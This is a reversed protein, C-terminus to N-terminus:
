PDDTIYEITFIIQSTDTIDNTDLSTYGATTPKVFLLETNNTLARIFIPGTFAADMNTCYTVVGGGQGQATNAVPFPPNKLFLIGSAGNISSLQIEGSIFVRNGYRSWVCTDTGSLTCDTGGGTIGFQPTFAVERGISYQQGDIDSGEVFVRRYAATGLLVHATVGQQSDFEGELITLATEDAVANVRVAYQAYNIFKTGIFRITDRTRPTTTGSVLNNSGAAAKSYLESGMVSLTSVDNGLYISGYAGGEVNGLSCNSIFCDAQANIRVPERGTLADCNILTYTRKLDAGTGEIDYLFGEAANPANCRCSDLTLDFGRQAHFGEPGDNHCHALTWRDCGSHTTFPTQHCNYAKWGHVLVDETRGGDTVHRCNSAVAGRMTGARCQLAFIGYFGSNQGEVIADTYGDNHGRMRPIDVDFGYTNSFWCQAGSFGGVYEPEFIANQCYNFFVAATGSGNGVNHDYGGGDFHGGVVGVNQLGTYATIDCTYTTADLDRPMPIQLTITTGSIARVRNVHSRPILTASETYWRYGTNMFYLVDGVSIGTADAVTISTADEAVDAALTTTASTSGVFRFVADLDFQVEAGMTGACTIRAGDCRIYTNSTTFTTSSGFYYQTPLLFADGGGTTSLYTAMLANAAAMDTTGPTTNDAFHDPSPPGLPSWKDGKLTTLATGSADRQYSLLFGSPTMVQITNYTADILAIEAQARSRFTPSGIFEAGGISLTASGYGGGGDHDHYDDPHGVRARLGRSGAHNFAGEVGPGLKTFLSDLRSEAKNRLLAAKATDRSLLIEAAVRCVLVDADILTKDSDNVLDAIKLQGHVRVTGNEAPIPWLEFQYTSDGEDPQFEYRLPPWSRDTDVYQSRQADGIGHKMPYWDQGEAVSMQRINAVEMTSPFSYIKTGATIDVDIEDHRMPWRHKTSLYRQERNILQKIYPDRSSSNSTQEKAELKVEEILTALTVGTRM